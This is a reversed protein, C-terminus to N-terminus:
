PKNRLLRLGFVLMQLAVSRNRMTTDEHGCTAQMGTPTHTVTVAHVGRGNPVFDVRVDKSEIGM